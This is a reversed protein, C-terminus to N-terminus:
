HLYSYETDIFEKALAIYYEEARSLRTTNPYVVLNDVYGSPDTIFYVSDGKENMNGIPIISIGCGADVLTYLVAASVRFLVNPTFGAENFMKDTVLSTTLEPSSLIFTENELLRLDIVSLKGRQAKKASGALPHTKPVSLVFRERLLLQSALGTNEYGSTVFAIDLIGQEILLNIDKTIGNTVKLVINPFREKFKSFIKAFMQSSKITTLGINIVGAECATIDSIQKKVQKFLKVTHRAAEVYIRGAETLPWENKIRKFLPTGLEDELKSLRLSLASLSIFMEDATKTLSKTDALRVIYEIQHIDM